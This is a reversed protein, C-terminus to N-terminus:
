ATKQDIELLKLLGKVAVAAVGPISGKRAEWSPYTRYPTELKEAMTKVAGRHDGVLKMRAAKLDRGIM